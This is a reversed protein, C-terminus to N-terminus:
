SKAPPWPRSADADIWNKVWDPLPPSEVPQGLAKLVEAPAVIGSKSTIASRILVHSTCDGAKWMSQEMYVFRDDWGIWHSIMEVRDFLRM